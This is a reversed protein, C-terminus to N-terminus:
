EKKLQRIQPHISELSVMSDICQTLYPTPVMKAAFVWGEADARREHKAVRAAVDVLYCQYTNFVM